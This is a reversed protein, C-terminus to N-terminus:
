EEHRNLTDNVTKDTQHAPFFFFFLFECHPQKDATQYDDLFIIIM